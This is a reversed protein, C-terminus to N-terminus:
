AALAELYPRMVRETRCIGAYRDLADKTFCRGHQPSRAAAPIENGFPTRRDIAVWVESPLQTGVGHFQLASLLCVIGRPVALEHVTVGQRGRALKLTRARDTPTPM